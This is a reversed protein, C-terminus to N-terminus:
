DAVLVRPRLAYALAVVLWDRLALDGVRLLGCALGALAIPAVAVARAVPPGPLSLYLWWGATLAAVVCLLDVAGMGWAVVDQLELNQPVRVAEM